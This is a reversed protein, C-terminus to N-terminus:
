SVLVGGGMDILNLYPHVLIPNISYLTDNDELRKAEDMIDAFPGPLKTQGHIASVVLPVKAMAM